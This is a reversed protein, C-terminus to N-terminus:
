QGAAAEEAKKREEEELKAKLELADIHLIRDREVIYALGDRVAIRPRILDVDSIKLKYDVKGPKKYKVLWGTDTVAWLKKKEDLTVAWDEIGPTIDSIDMIVGHRFGDPSYMVLERGFILGLKNNHLVIAGNPTGDEITFSTVEESDLKYVYANRQLIAVLKGQRHLLYGEGGVGPQLPDPNRIPWGIIQEGEEGFVRVRAEGDLVAFGDAERGPVIAIDVPNTFGGPKVTPASGGVYFTRTTSFWRNTIGPELGWMRTMKGDPNFRQVRHNGVDAIYLDGFQDLEVDMPEGFSRLAGPEWGPQGWYAINRSGGSALDQYAYFMQAKDTLERSREGTTRLAAMEIAPIGNADKLKLLAEIAIPNPPLAQVRYGAPVLRAAQSRLYPAGDAAEDMILQLKDRDGFEAESIEGFLEKIKSENREAAREGSSSARWAELREVVKPNSGGRFNLAVEALFVDKYVFGEYADDLRLTLKRAKPLELDFEEYEMVVDVRQPGVDSKGVDQLRVQQEHTEGSTLELLITITRPRSFERLSRKGKALNGPWLSVSEIPTPVDLPLELTSGDGMGDEGEAWGTSLLGDFARDATHRVNDSDRLYSSARPSGALAPTALLTALSLALLRTM